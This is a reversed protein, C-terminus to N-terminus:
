RIEVGKVKENGHFTPFYMLEAKAPNLTYKGTFRPNLEISFSHNGKDMRNCFIVVKDKFYESHNVSWYSNPKTEYSCGAPIPVEIQVYQADAKVDVSVKLTVAKGAKLVSATDNNDAFCSKVAFGKKAEVAPDPNWAQQYSTIFVPATGRKQIEVEKGAIKLVEAYPFKTILSGNVNLSVDKLSQNENLMDPLITEMIRTSEYTNTWQGNRRIEFFYNRIKELEAQKNGMNKFISYAMLTYETNNEYPLEFRFDGNDRNTWYLSGLLAQRSYKMLSDLPIQNQLGITAMVQFTRLKDTLSYNKLLNIQKFYGEFDIPASLRKLLLLRDFLEGKAYPLKDPLAMKLSALGGDLEHQYYKVLTEKDFNTTYGADQADLMASIVQKSVWFVTGSNNWWGWLGVTNKNKNLKQILENLKSENRFNKGLFKYLRKQSLLAKIKSAMQENCLYKYKEVKDIEDLFLAFSSAEAHVTVEGLAPDSKLKHVLTDNLVQFNGYTQLMGKEFIPLSREEGDVFGNPSKISYSISLSDGEAAKTPIHDLYNTKIKLDNVVTESTSKYSRTLSISDGYYNSIRGTANFEDGRIAFSPLSLRATLAKFSRISLQQKDTMRKGGIAIFHANWTTIDDPYTVEFSAKGQKDTTLRPQWFADDHFNKRISNGPVDSGGESLAKDVKAKFGKTQIM